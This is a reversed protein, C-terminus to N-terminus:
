IKKFWELKDVGVQHSHLSQLNTDIQLVDGKQMHSATFFLQHDTYSLSAELMSQGGEIMIFKYQKVRELTDEIFVKRNKVKFLPIEFDFIKSQSYILIDPAKGGTLRCDLTPRDVRVTNGGIILLDIKERLKHVLTRSELSSIIGGSYVGNQTKALKFFLYPDGTQWKKFPELLLECEKQLVGESVNVGSNKLISAGGSAKPNPDMTGIVIKKFGLEKVLLSCPPTSGTHNCPELTVYITAGLFYNHHHKLVYQHKEIPNKIKSVKTDGLLTLAKTIVNLEAHASGAEHHADIAILKEHQDLILAGVAPNPYTLGQYKWAEDICLQMYFADDVM